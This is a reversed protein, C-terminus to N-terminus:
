GLFKMYGAAPDYQNSVPFVDNTKVHLSPFITDIDNLGVGFWNALTAAYQDVSTTPIIRGNGDGPDNLNPSPVGYSSPTPNILSPMVLGYNAAAGSFGCGNGYFKGGQVAGGLVFHHSGWGHDTGGNNATMSRGFDSATFATAVNALTGGTISVSNLANYFGALARSLVPLLDVHQNVEDSHTDYGSTNIFFVQRKLGNYGTINNYAAWILRAATQLQSDFNYGTADPFFSSFTPAGAHTLAANVIGATSSAHNMTAAYTRELVNAQTGSAQLADFTSQLHNGPTPDYPLDVQLPVSANMIYGAVNQGRIFADQGSFSTMIPINTPYAAAVLDCIRGGWGTTPTNSPPSSQWYAAQDSHSYLQPPLAPNNHLYQYQTVPQVLTGVNAMIALPSNPQNFLAALEPMQAHMAYQIGDGSTGLADTLPHLQSRDLALQPRVPKVAGNTGYFSDFTSQTYPAITNFGDNGGYLFVCVLAKYGSSFDTNSALTAAQLLQLNGLASYVSAGGLAASLTQRIFKRRDPRM